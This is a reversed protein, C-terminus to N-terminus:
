DGSPLYAANVLTQSFAEPSGAPGQSVRLSAQVASSKGSAASLASTAEVLLLGGLALFEQGGYLRRLKGHFARVLGAAFRSLGRVAEAPDKAANQRLRHGRCGLNVLADVLFADAVLLSNLLRRRRQVSALIDRARRPSYFAATRKRGASLLVEEVRALEGPLQQGTMRFFGEMSQEGLVDYTFEYPPKGHSPRSVQYVVLPFAAELTEYRTVDSFYIYPLWLRIARQVAVSVRSYTAFFEPGREGPADLWAEVLPGPITLALSVDLEGTRGATLTKLREGAGAAFGYGELTATLSRAVRECPLRRQDSYTLTFSSKTHVRGVSLGGALALMSQYSNRSAVRHSAEVHYVLLRGDGDSTVEMRALAELRTSWEKRDLFPLHLEVTAESRLGSTLVGQRVDV